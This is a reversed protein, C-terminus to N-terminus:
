QQTKHLNAHSCTLEQSFRLLLQQIPTCSAVLGAMPSVPELAFFNFGLSRVPCVCLNFVVTHQPLGFTLATRTGPDMMFECLRAPTQPAQITDSSRCSNVEGHAGQLMQADPTSSKHPQLYQLLSAEQWPQCKKKGIRPQKLRRCSHVQLGFM